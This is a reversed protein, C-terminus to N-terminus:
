PEVPRLHVVDAAHVAHREGQGDVVLLAGHRDLGVARGTLFAGDPLEARVQRGLTDMRARLRELLGPGDAWPAQPDGDVACFGAYAAAFDNLYAALLVNRDTTSAYEMLLSTATPVPLDEDTLSVNMGAGVVVAPPNSGAGPVMQALVGALKRGDVMVDNPWKLRAAVGTCRSVAEALSLAALLSLWGYSQTPLPRGQPGHPRLLVSVFLSSREPAEWSRGMRGRGETQLEATLVSFDPWAQGPGSVDLRAAEALDANTSGTRQVVDLRSVPGTPAVLQARLGAEDLGPREMASYHQQM